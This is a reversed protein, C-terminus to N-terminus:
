QVPLGSVQLSRATTELRLFSYALDNTHVLREVHEYFVGAIPMDRDLHMNEHSGEECFSYLKSKTPHAKVLRNTHHKQEFDFIKLVLLSMRYPYCESLVVWKTLKGCFRRFAPIDGVKAGDPADDSEPMRRAISRIVQYTNVIRKLRRPNVEAALLFERCVHLEWLSVSHASKVDSPSIWRMNLLECEEGYREDDEEKGGGEQAIDHDWESPLTQLSRITSENEQEKKKQQQPQNQDNTQVPHEAGDAALIAVHRAADAQEGQEAPTTTAAVM